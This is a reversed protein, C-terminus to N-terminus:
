KEEGEEIGIWLHNPLVNPQVQVAVGEVKSDDIADPHVICLTPSNGYKMTYYHIAHKVKEALTRKKTGDWWMM